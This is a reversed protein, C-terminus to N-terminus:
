ILIFLIFWQNLWCFFGTHTRIIRFLVAEDGTSSLVSSAWLEQPQQEKNLWSILFFVFPFLSVDHVRTVAYHQVPSPAPGGRAAGSCTGSTSPCPSRRCRPAPCRPASRPRTRSWARRSTTTSSASLSAASTRTRGTATTWCTACRPPAPPSTACWSTIRGCWCPAPWCPTWARTSAPRRWRTWSRRLQIGGKSHGTWSVVIIYSVTSWYKTSATWCAACLYDSGRIFLGDRKLHMDTGPTLWVTAWLRHTSSWGLSVFWSLGNNSMLSSLPGEGSRSSMAQPRLQRYSPWWLSGTEM